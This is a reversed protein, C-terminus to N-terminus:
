SKLKSNQTKLKSNGELYMHGSALKVMPTVKKGCHPCTVEKQQTAVLVVSVLGGALLIIGIGAIDWVQEQWGRFGMILGLICLTASVLMDYSKFTM